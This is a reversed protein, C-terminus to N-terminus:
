NIGYFRVYFGSPPVGPFKPPPIGAPEGFGSGKESWFIDKKVDTKLGPMSVMTLEDRGYNGRFCYGIGSWFPRLRYGNESWFSAFAMGKPAARVQICPKYLPTGGPCLFPKMVIPSAPTARM